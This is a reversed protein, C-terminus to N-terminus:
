CRERCSLFDAKVTQELAEMYKSIKKVIDGVKLPIPICYADPLDPVIFTSARVDQYENTDLTITAGTWYHYIFVQKCDHYSFLNASKHCVNLIWEGRKVFIAHHTNPLLVGTNHPEDEEESSELFSRIVNYVWPKVYVVDMVVKM